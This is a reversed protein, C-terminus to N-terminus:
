APTSISRLWIRYGGYSYFAPAREALTVQRGQSRVRQLLGRPVLRRVTPMLAPLRYRLASVDRYEPGATEAFQVRLGARELVRTLEGAGFFTLHPEDHRPAWPSDPYRGLADPSVHPVEVYLLGGPRLHTRLQGLITVPNLLHELVHSLVIIDFPENLSPLESELTGEMVEVGIQRMHAVCPESLEIALRHTGPFALGLMHLIHGYGAGVDLIRLGSTTAPVRSRLLETISAGRNYFYLNDKPFASLDAADAGYRGGKRYETAYYSSLEQETPLPSLQPQGCATCQMVDGAGFLRRGSPSEARYPRIRTM